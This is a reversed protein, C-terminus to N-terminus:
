VKAGNQRFLERVEDSMESNSFDMGTISLSFIRITRTENNEMNTIRIIGNDLGIAEFKKKQIFGQLNYEGSEKKLEGTEIDWIYTYRNSKGIFKKGDISFSFEIYSNNHGKLSRIYEGTKLDWICITGDEDRSVIYKGDPTLDVAIIYVEQRRFLSFTKTEQYNHVKWRRIISSTKLDYITIYSRLASVIRKGDKTMALCNLSNTRSNDLKGLLTRTELDWIRILKDSSRSIIFRDDNTVIVSYIAESHGEEIPIMSEGSNLDWIGITKDASGSIIRKGDPTVAISNVYTKHGKIPPIESKLTNANWVSIYNSGSGSVVRTGDCTTALCFVPGYPCEIIKEDNSNYTETNWIRITKDNSGSIIHSGDPVLTIANVSFVHGKIPEGVRVGSELDWLCITNDMSGSVIRHGDPTIAVASVTSDHKMKTDGMEMRKKFDWVRVTNDSSGSVIRTCENNIAVSNITDMHGLLPEGIQLGTKLDWIRITKDSSGSIIYRGDKDVAVANVDKEHGVLIMIQAGNEANWVRITKDSSGSVIYKGDPTIAIANVSGEHGEPSITKDSLKTKSMRDKHLPLKITTETYYKVTENISKFAFLSINRLDLGSFDLHSFDNNHLLGQLRLQNRTANEISPTTARNQEWLWIADKESILDAVFQLVYNDVYSEWEKPLKGDSLHISNILHMAALADRFQQHILRYEGENNIFLCLHEKLIDGLYEMTPLGPSQRMTTKIHDPLQGHTEVHSKLLHYAEDIRDFFSSEDLVFDSHQQMIWAIYPAIVEMALIGAKANSKKNKFRWLECQLYNWILLGANKAEKFRAFPSPRDNRIAEAKIYLTLLLPITILKIVAPNKPIGMKHSVLYESVTEKSLPQLEIKSFSSRLAVYQHIDFRSSTVIQLGPLESWLEIDESISGRLEFPIENFGDLLLLLNPGNTWPKNIVEQLLHYQDKSDLIRNRIYKEIPNTKEKLEHLPIYIAPVPHPAFNDPLSLLTVTKGIGGEGEIMLHNTEGRVWSEAIIKRVTKLENNLDRAETDFTVMGNPFLSADIDMLRFSPHHKRKEELKNHLCADLSNANVNTKRGKKNEMDDLREKLRNFGKKVNENLDGLSEKIEGTDTKIEVVGGKVEEMEKSLRGIEDQIVKVRSDIDESIYHQWEDKLITLLEKDKLIQNYLRRFEEKNIYSPLIIEGIRAPNDYAKVLLDILEAEHLMANRIYLDDYKATPKLAKAIAHDFKKIIQDGYGVTRKRVGRVIDILPPLLGVFLEMTEM